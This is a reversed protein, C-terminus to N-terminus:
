RFSGCAAASSAGEYPNAITSGEQPWQRKTTDCSAGQVGEPPALQVAAMDITMPPSGMSTSATALTGPAPTCAATFLALPILRRRM